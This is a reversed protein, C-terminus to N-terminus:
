PPAVTVRSAVAPCDQKPTPTQGADHQLIQTSDAPKILGNCDVDGWTRMLGGVQVADGLNPCYRPASPSQGADRQLIRTSDGPKVLGSCDLDGWVRETGLVPDCADGLGDNDGDEQNPNGTTLCNDFPDWVGDADADGLDHVFVDVCNENSLGDDNIDCLDNTDGPVLNSAASDFAVVRGDASLVPSSSHNNGQNGASDQSVRAILGSARDRVFDDLSNNFDGPVLNSALSHFAVFRGDASLSVTQCCGGSDDNGEVGSSNVSVRETTGLQRDHVFVDAVANTDAAVLNSAPSWYAVFRGDASLAPNASFSNGQGGGSSVSVRTTVGTQRDHVIIDDCNDAFVNNGDNDCSNNNDGPVLNSAVSEFTVIRGDGSIAPLFSFGNGQNGASDVSVRQTTGNQRDRVFVDWTDNTDGAVLNSAISYFAVFRGDGSIVPSFSERNAGTGFSDVSIRETVGMQRDRLFIDACSENFVGDLDNDCINNTDGAALNSAASTFAVFRGDASIAPPEVFAPGNGQIGAGSVSVRETTGTQRDRVFIDGFDNTDGPVLNSADSWFGVFRGDPAMAPCCSFFNGQTADSAVSVRETAGPSARVDGPLSLLSLAALLFLLPLKRLM